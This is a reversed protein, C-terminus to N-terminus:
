LNEEIWDAIKQFDLGTFDNCRALFVALTIDNQSDSVIYTTHEDPRPIKPMDSGDSTAWRWVMSHLVGAENHLSMRHCDPLTSWQTGTAKCYLEGLVGLCCHRLVGTKEWSKLVGTGQVYEGSRLAALWAAKVDPKLIVTM